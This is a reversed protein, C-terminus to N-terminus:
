RHYPLGKILTMARYLQEALLVRVLSHPFTLDSLSWTQQMKSLCEQTLGEPGGILLAIDQHNQYFDQLLTALNETNLKKGRPELAICSCNAPIKELLKRSEQQKIVECNANNGRKIASVEHLIIEFERPMRKSYENFGENIFSPMTKGISIIHIKM